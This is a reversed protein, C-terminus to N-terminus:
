LRVRGAKVRGGFLTAVIEERRNWLFRRGAPEKLYALCSQPDLHSAELLTILAWREIANTHPDLIRFHAGAIFTDDGFRQALWIRMAQSHAEIHPAESPDAERAPQGLSLRLKRQHDSLRVVLDPVALRGLQLFQSQLSKTRASLEEVLEDWPVAPGYDHTEITQHSLAPTRAH